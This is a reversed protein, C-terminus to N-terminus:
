PLHIVPSVKSIDAASMRSPIYSSLLPSVQIYCEASQVGNLAWKGDIIIFPVGNVGNARAAQVMKEVCDLTETSKLFEVAQPTPQAFPHPFPIFKSLM